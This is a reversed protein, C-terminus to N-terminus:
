CSLVGLNHGRRCCGDGANGPGLRGLQLLFRDLEAVQQTLGAAVSCDADGLKLQGLDGLATPAPSFM